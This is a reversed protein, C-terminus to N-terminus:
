LAFISFTSLFKLQLAQNKLFLSSLSIQCEKWERQLLINSFVTHKLISPPALLRIMNFANFGIHNLSVPSLQANLKVQLTELCPAQANITPM